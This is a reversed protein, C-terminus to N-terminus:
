DEGEFYDAEACIEIAAELGSQCCEYEGRPKGTPFASAVTQEVVSTQSARKGRRLGGRISGRM